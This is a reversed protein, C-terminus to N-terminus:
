RTRRPPTTNRGSSWAGLGRRGRPRFSHVLSWWLQVYAQRFQALAFPLSVLCDPCTVEWFAPTVAGTVSCAPLLRRSALYHVPPPTTM